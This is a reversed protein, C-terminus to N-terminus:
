NKRARKRQKRKLQRVEKKTLIKESTTNGYSGLTFRVPVNYTVNIKKGKSEGPTWRPMISIVRLAEKDITESVGRIIKPSTVNGTTDIIFQVYVRGEEGSDLAEQPYKINAVLWKQLAMQGGPFQPEVETAIETFVPAEIQSFVAWPLLFFFLLLKM